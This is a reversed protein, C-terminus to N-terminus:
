FRLRPYRSPETTSSCVAHPPLFHALVTIVNCNGFGVPYVLKCEVLSNLHKFPIDFSCSSLCRMWFAIMIVCNVFTVLQNNDTCCFFACIVHSNALMSYPANSRRFSSLM